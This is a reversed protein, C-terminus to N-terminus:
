APLPPVFRHHPPDKQDPTVLEPRGAGNHITVHELQGALRVGADGDYWRSRSKLVGAARRGVTHPVETTQTGIRVADVDHSAFIGFVRADHRLQVTGIDDVEGTATRLVQM